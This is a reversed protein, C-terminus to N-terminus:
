SIAIGVHDAIAVFTRRPEFSVDWAVWIPAGNQLMDIGLQGITLGYLADTASAIDGSRSGSEESVVTLDIDLLRGMAENALVVTKMSSLVVLPIPLYQLSTLAIVDASPHPPIRISLPNSRLSIPSADESHVHDMQDM